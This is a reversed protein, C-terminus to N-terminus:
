CGWFQFLRWYVIGVAVFIRCLTETLLILNIHGKSKKILSLINMLEWQYIRGQQKNILMVFGNKAQPDFQVGSWCNISRAGNM